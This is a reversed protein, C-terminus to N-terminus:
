MTCPRIFTVSMRNVPFLFNLLEFSDFFTVALHALREVVLLQEGVCLFDFLKVLLGAIGLGFDLRQDSRVLAGPPGRNCKFDLLRGLNSNGVDLEFPRLLKGLALKALGDFGPAPPPKGPEGLGSMQLLLFQLIVLIPQRLEIAVGAVDIEFELFDFLDRHFGAADLKVEEHGFAALVLHAGNIEFAHREKGGVIDVFTQFHTHALRERGLAQGLVRFDDLVGVAGLTIDVGADDGPAAGVGAGARDIEM